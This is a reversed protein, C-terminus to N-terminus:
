NAAVPAADAAAPSASMHEISLWAVGMVLVLGTMLLSLKHLMPFHRRRRAGDGADLLM